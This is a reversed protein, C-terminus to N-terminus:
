DSVRGLSPRAPLYFYKGSVVAGYSSRSPGPAGTGQSVRVRRETVVANQDRLDKYNLTPTLHGPNRQEYRFVSAM